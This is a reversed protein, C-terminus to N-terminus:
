KHIVCSSSSSSSSSDDSFELMSSLDAVFIWAPMRPKRTRLRWCASCSAAVLIWAPNRPKLVLFSSFCFPCHSPSGDAIRARAASEFTRAARAYRFAARPVSGSVQCALKRGVQLSSSKARAAYISSSSSLSPSLSIEVAFPRPSLRHRHSKSAPFILGRSTADVAAAAAEERWTGDM